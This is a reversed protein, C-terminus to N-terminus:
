HAHQDIEVAGAVGLRRLRHREVGVVRDPNALIEAIHHEHVAFYPWEQLDLRAQIPEANQVTAVRPYQVEVDAARPHPLDAGFAAKQSLGTGTM